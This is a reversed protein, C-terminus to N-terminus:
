TTSKKKEQFWHLMVNIRVLMQFKYQCMKEVPQCLYTWSAKGKKCYYSFQTMM